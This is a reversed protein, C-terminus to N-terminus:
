SGRRVRPPAVRPNVITLVGDEATAGEGDVTVTTGDLTVITATAEDYVYDDTSEHDATLSARADSVAFPDTNVGDIDCTLETLSLDAKGSCGVLLSLLALSPTASRAM